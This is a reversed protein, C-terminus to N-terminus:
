YIWTFNPEVFELEKLGCFEILSNFRAMQQYPRAAGGEKEEARKIENFYGIVLWPLHSVISLSNLLQM